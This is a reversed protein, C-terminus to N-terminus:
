ALDQRKRNPAQQEEAQWQEPRHGDQVVSERKQKDSYQPQQRRSIHVPELQCVATGHYGPLRSHQWAVRVSRALSARQKTYVPLIRLEVRVVLTRPPRDGSIVSVRTSGRWDGPENAGTTASTAIVSSALAARAPRRSTRMFANGHVMPLSLPEFRRASEARASNRSPRAGSTFSRYRISRDHASENCIERSCKAM